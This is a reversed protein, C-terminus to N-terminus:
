MFDLRAIKVPNVVLDSVREGIRARGFSLDDLDFQLLMKRTQDRQTEWLDACLLATIENTIREGRALCERGQVEVHERQACGNSCRAQCKHNKGARHPLEIPFM